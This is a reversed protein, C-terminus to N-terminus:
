FTLKVAMQIIRAPLTSSIVGAQATGIMANPPNFNARNFANFWESRFELNMAERIYFRKMIGLDENFLPFDRVNPLVQPATGFTFPAASAFAARSLYTDKAPDFKGGPFLKPNVVPVRNPTNLYNFLFLNNPGTIYVPFGAQYTLVGNLQWGGLIKGAPGKANLFHKGPGIPLEYTFATTLRHPPNTPSLAKEIKRNYTDRAATSFSGGWSSDADTLKKSWTYSTLMYLGQSLQKNLKIELAHYTSHGINASGGFGPGNEPGLDLGSYQPFPRLAQALTPTYPFSAVFNPYPPTFGAAVVAPDNIPKNL